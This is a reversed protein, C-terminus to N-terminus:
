LSHQSSSASRVKVESAHELLPVLWGILDQFLRGINERWFFLRSGPFFRVCQGTNDAFCVLLCVPPFWGPRPGTQTSSCPPSTFCFTSLSISTTSPQSQYGHIFKFFFFFRSGTPTGESMQYSCWTVTIFLWHWLDSRAEHKWTQM